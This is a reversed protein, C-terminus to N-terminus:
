FLCKWIILHYTVFIFWKQIRTLSYLKTLHNNFSILATEIILRRFTLVSILRQMKHTKLSQKLSAMSTQTIFQDQLYYNM